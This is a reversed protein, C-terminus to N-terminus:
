LSIQNRKGKVISDIIEVIKEIINNKYFFISEYKKKLDSSIHFSNNVYYKIKDILDKKKHFYNGFFLTDNEKDKIFQINDIKYFLVPKNQFMFDFSLSSYDTIYLSCHEIFHELEIQKKIQAYQYNNKSYNKGFTLEVHHPIYILDIKREKLFFILERDNLFELLNKKYESNNFFKENYSRWTFSTLICKKESINNKIFQFRDYRALGANYINNYSYNYDKTLLKYEYPSSCIVNKKNGLSNLFDIKAFIPKFHKIGHNIRLYNIYPIYSAILQLFQTSYSTILIKTNRLYIFINKLFEIKNNENYLILNNTKKLNLLYKYLDSENNIIYYPKDIQNKIYYEFLYYANKDCCSKSTYLDAFIIDTKKTKNSFKKLEEFLITENTIKNSIDFIKRDYIRKNLIFFLLVIFIIILKKNLLKNIM